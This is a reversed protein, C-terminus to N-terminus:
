CIQWLDTYLIRHNLAFPVTNLIHSSHPLTFFLLFLFWSFTSLRLPLAGASQTMM